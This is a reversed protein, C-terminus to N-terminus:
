PRAMGVVEDNRVATGTLGIVHGATEPLLGDFQCPNTRISM